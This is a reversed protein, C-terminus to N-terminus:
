GQEFGFLFIGGRGRLLCLDLFFPRLFYLSVIGFCGFQGCADFLEAALHRFYFRLNQEPFITSGITKRASWFASTIEKTTLSCSMQAVTLTAWKKPGMEVLFLQFVLM